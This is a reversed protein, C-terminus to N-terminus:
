NRNKSLNSSIMIILRQRKRIVYVFKTGRLRLVDVNVRLGRSPGEMTSKMHIKEAYDATFFGFDGWLFVISGFM